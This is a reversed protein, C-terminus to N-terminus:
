SFIVLLLPFISVSIFFMVTSFSCIIILFPYYILFRLLKFTNRKKVSNETCLIIKLNKSIKTYSLFLLLLFSVISILVQFFINYWLSKKEQIFKKLKRRFYVRCYNLSTIDLHDFSYSKLCFKCISNLCNLCKVYNKKNKGYLAPELCKSCIHERAKNYLFFSDNTNVDLVHKQSYLKISEVNLFNNKNYNPLQSDYQTYNGINLSQKTLAKTLKSEIQLNGPLKSEEMQIINGSKKEERELLYQLHKESILSKILKTEYKMPCKFIVCKMENNGQEIKEEFFDRACKNCITHDCKNSTIIKESSYYQDCIFCIYTQDTLSPSSSEYRNTNKVNVNISNPIHNVINGISIIEKEAKIESIIHFRKSLQPIIITNTIDHIKNARKLNRNQDDSKSLEEKSTYIEASIFHKKNEPAIEKNLNPELDVASIIQNQLKENEFNLKKCMHIELGEEDIGFISEEKNESIEHERRETTNSHISYITNNNESEDLNSINNHNINDCSRFISNSNNIKNRNSSSKNYIISNLNRIEEKKKINELSVGYINEDEKNAKEKNLILDGENRIIKEKNVKSLNLM